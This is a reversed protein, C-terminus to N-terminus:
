RFTQFSHSPLHLLRADPIELNVPNGFVLAGEDGGLRKKGIEVRLHYPRAGIMEARPQDIPRGTVQEEAEVAKDYLGPVMRDQDIGTEAVVLLARGARLKMPQASGIDGVEGADPDRDLVDIIHHASVQMPVMDTPVRPEFAAAP